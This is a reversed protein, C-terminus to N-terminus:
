NESQPEQEMAYVSDTPYPTQLCQPGFADAHKTGNWAPVPQPPKWRFDGIPAAAFPIGKFSRVGDTTVGSIQGGDVTITDPPAALVGSVAAALCTTWILRTNM